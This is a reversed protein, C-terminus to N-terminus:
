DDHNIAAICFLLPGFLVGFVLALPLTVPWSCLM